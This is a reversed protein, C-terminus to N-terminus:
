LAAAGELACRTAAEIAENDLVLGVEIECRSVWVLDGTAANLLRIQVQTTRRQMFSQGAGVWIRTSLVGDAGLDRLITAQQTPTAEFWTAGTIQTRSATSATSATGGLDAGDVAGAVSEAARDIVQLRSRTAANVREPDVIKYGRFELEARVQQDVNLMSDQMCHPDVTTAVPRTVDYPDVIEGQPATRDARGILSLSGCTSPLAIVTRPKQQYSPGTRTRLVPPLLESSVCGGALVAVVALAAARPHTM